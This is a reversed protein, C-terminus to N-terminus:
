RAAPKTSVPILSFLLKNRNGSPETVCLIVCTVPVILHPIDIKEIRLRPRPESAFFDWIRLDLTAAGAHIAPNRTTLLRHGIVLRFLPAAAAVM